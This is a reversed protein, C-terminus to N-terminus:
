NNWQVGQIIWLFSILMRYYIHCFRKEMLISMNKKSVRFTTNLYEVINVRVSVLVLYILPIYLFEGDVKIYFTSLYFKSIELVM